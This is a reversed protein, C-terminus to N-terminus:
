SCNPPYRYRFEKTEETRESNDDERCQRDRRVRNENEIEKEWQELIKESREKQGDGKFIDTM